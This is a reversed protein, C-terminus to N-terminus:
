SLSKKRRIKPKKVPRLYPNDIISEEGNRSGSLSPNQQLVSTNEKEAGSDDPSIHLPLNETDTQEDQESSDTEEMQQMELESPLLATLYPITFPRAAILPFTSVDDKFLSQTEGTKAMFRTLAREVDRRQSAAKERLVQYDSVPERYTPTKIYTHPDPFEPFHSPIHPPHPRNQGATLAKPTVPQNTVPPATIVMRQSRKAYAPLTDVNFGMEVLTVVIDSLTPQTRATHECYSKASRGIESIYSQLMETLTEVSAKEASEFGAETLLSSVVVQLTRRRALHYNDAPNTSQKSGSRQSDAAWFCLVNKNLQGRARQSDAPTQPHAQLRQQSSATAPGDGEWATADVRHRHNDTTRERTLRRLIPPLTKRAGRNALTQPAHSAHPPTQPDPDRRRALRRSSDPGLGECLPAGLGKTEGAGEEGSGAWSGLLYAQPSSFGLYIPTLSVRSEQFRWASVMTGALGCPLPEMSEQQKEMIKRSSSKECSAELCIQPPESATGRQRYDSRSVETVMMDDERDHGLRLELPQAHPGDLLSLAARTDKSAM